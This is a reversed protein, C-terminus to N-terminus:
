LECRFAWKGSKPLLSFRHPQLHRSASILAPFRPHSHFRLIESRPFKGQFSALSLTNDFLAFAWSAFCRRCKLREIADFNMDNNNHISGNKRPSKVHAVRRTRPRRVIQVPQTNTNLYCPNYWQQGVDREHTCTKSARVSFIALM